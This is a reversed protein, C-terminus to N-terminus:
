LVAYLVTETETISYHRLYLRYAPCYELILSPIEWMDAPKHYVCIALKPTQARIIREAGRLAALESGEIDMKIFTVPQDGLLDDLKRVPIRLSGDESISASGADGDSPSFGMQTNADYLGYPFFQATPYDKLREQTLAMQSPSPEFVYAHGGPFHDLFYKTNDGNLAGADVFYEGSWNGHRQDLRQLEFYQGDLYAFVYRLGHAEMDAQIENRASEDGVTIVVLYDRHDPRALFADLSIIPLGRVSGTKYRDIVFPAPGHWQIIWEAGAGAGYYCIKSTPLQACIPVCDCVLRTIEEQAGFLSYLLRRRYVNKSIDDALANYIKQLDKPSTWTM